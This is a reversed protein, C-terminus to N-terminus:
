RSCPAPITYELILTRHVQNSLYDGVAWVTTSNCGAGTTAVGYLYNSTSPQNPSSVVSWQNNAWRLTLTSVPPQDYEGVAWVHNATVAAVANLENYYTNFPYPLSPSPVVNWATGNWSLTLTRRNGTADVYFGVARADLDTTVVTIGNLVNDGSGAVNPSSVILWANVIPNRDWHMILTLRRSRDANYYYGVAKVDGLPTASVGTLYADAAGTQFPPPNPSSMIEWQTGNWRMTLTQHPNASGSYGVAWVQNGSVVAVSVLRNNGPRNPSIERAWESGDWRLTLTQEVGNADTYHGVAWVDNSSVAAVGSLYNDGSNPGNPSDVISWSTGNWRQILTSTGGTKEDDHYGVAWADNNSVAAVARLTNNGPGVNPSAVISWAQNAAGVTPVAVLSSLLM